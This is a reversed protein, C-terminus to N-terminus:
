PQDANSHSTSVSDTHTVVSLDYRRKRDGEISITIGIARIADIIAAQEPLFTPVPLQDQQQMLAEVNLFFTNTNSTPQAAMAQRFLETDALSVAPEPVMTTTIRESGIFAITDGLWGRNLSVSGAPRQWNVVPQGELQNDNVRLQYETEVAEDLASLSEEARTRDSAEVMFVLGPLALNNSDHQSSAFALGFRGDMWGILDADLDLGFRTQSTERLYQPSFLGETLDENRRSYLEWQQNLDSGTMMMLTQDPLRSALQRDSQNNLQLPESDPLLWSNGRITVGTPNLTATATLGQINHWPALNQPQAAQTANASAVARAVPANIYLKAFVSQNAVSRFADAYGDIDALSPEGQYTDIVDDIVGAQTALVLLKRDFAAVEYTEERSSQFTQITIGKYERQDPTAGSTILAQLRNQATTPDAVPLFIVAAQEQTLDIFEPNLQPVSVPGDIDSDDATVSSDDANLNDSQQEPDTEIIPANPDVPLEEVSEVSSEGLSIRDPVSIETPKMLAITITDGMWPQVDDRYTIGNDSLLRDSWKNLFADLQAQSTDTGLKRFQNWQAQDTSITLIMLADQPVAEVGVPLKERVLGFPSRNLFLYATVGGAALAALASAAIIVFRNKM